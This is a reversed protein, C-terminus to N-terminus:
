KRVRCGDVTAVHTTLSNTSFSSPDRDPSRNGPPRAFAVKAAARDEDNVAWNSGILPNMISIRVAPDVHQAGLAHGLEHIRVGKRLNSDGLETARQVCLAGGTVVNDARFIRQGLGATTLGACSAYTVLGDTAVTVSSGAAASVSTVGSFDQFVGATLLPLGARLDAIVSDVDPQTLQDATATYTQAGEDYSLITTMIRLAPAATWRQLADVRFMQNFATLNFDNKILTVNADAGPVKILTNRTVYGGASIDIALTSAAAGSVSVTGQASTTGGTVGSGSLTAGGIAAGSLVDSVKVTAALTLGPETPTTGGKSASCAVMAALVVLVAPVRAWRFSFM